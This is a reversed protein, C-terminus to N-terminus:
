AIARAVEEVAEEPVFLRDKEPMQMSTMGFSGHERIPTARGDDGIFYTWERPDTSLMEVKPNDRVMYWSPDAFGCKELAEEIRQYAGPSKLFDSIKESGHPVAKFLVRSRIRGALDVVVEDKKRDAQAIAEILVHLAFDDTSLVEHPSVPKEAVMKMLPGFIRDSEFEQFKGDKVVKKLRRLFNAVMGEASCVTRHHYVAEYMARRAVLFHEVVRMAKSREFGVVLQEDAAKGLTCTSILRNLDYGGYTVGCQQSDRRLFDARDVDIDSDLLRPLYSLHHVGVLLARLREAMGKECDELMRHLEGDPWALLAQGVLVHWKLPREVLPDEPSLGLARKWERANYQKGIIEREWAHSLPGHGLDHFLAALALDRIAVEDPLVLRAYQDRGSDRVQRGFLVALYAAGLSHVLRSHEGGPFVLHVLGLQRIRRLRQVERTRLVDVVFTEMGRFEMLGHTTDQIRRVRSMRM